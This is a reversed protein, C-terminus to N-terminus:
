ASALRRLHLALLLYGVLMALLAALVWGASVEDLAAALQGVGGSSGVVILLAGISVGAGLLFGVIRKLKGPGVSHKAM